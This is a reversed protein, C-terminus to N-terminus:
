SKVARSSTPEIRWLSSFIPQVSSPPVPETWCTARAHIPPISSLALADIAAIPRRRYARFSGIRPPLPVSDASARPSFGLQCLAAVSSYPSGAQVFSTLVSLRAPSGAGLPDELRCACCFWPLNRLPACKEPVCAVRGSSLLTGPTIGQEQVSHLLCV